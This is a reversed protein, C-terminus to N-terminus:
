DTRPPSLPPLPPPAYDWMAPEFDEHIRCSLEACQLTYDRWFGGGGRGDGNSGKNNHNTTTTMKQKPAANHLIFDPLLDLYRFLQGLGVQGSAVLQQCVTDRVVIVSTATCFTQGYVQLRVVRNWIQPRRQVTPTSATTTSNVGGNRNHNYTGQNPLSSTCTTTTSLKEVDATADNNKNCNDSTNADEAPERPPPPPQQQLVCSDVVVTVPADYYSAMLRQLNGNATLAMRDLPNTIGYRAALASSSSPDDGRTNTTNMNTGHHPEGSRSMIDGLSSMTTMNFGTTAAAVNNTVGTTRVHPRASKEYDDNNWHRRIGANDPPEVVNPRELVNTQSLSSSTGRPSHDTINNNSTQKMIFPDVPGLSNLLSVVSARHQNRTRCLHFASFSPSWASCPDVKGFLLLLLPFQLCSVWSRFYRCLLPSSFGKKRQVVTPRSSSSRERSQTGGNCSATRTASSTMRWGGCGVALPRGVSDNNEDSDIDEGEHPSHAISYAHNGSENAPLGIQRSRRYWQRNSSNRSSSFQSYYCFGMNKRCHRPAEKENRDGSLSLCWWWWQPLAADVAYDENHIM